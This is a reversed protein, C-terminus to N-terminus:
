FRLLLLGVQHATCHRRDSNHLLSPCLLHQECPAVMPTACTSTASAGQIVDSHKTTSVLIPPTCASLVCCTRWRQPGVRRSNRHQMPQATATALALSVFVGVMISIGYHTRHPESRQPLLLYSQRTDKATFQYTLGPSALTVSRYLPPPSICTPLCTTACAISSTLLFSIVQRM